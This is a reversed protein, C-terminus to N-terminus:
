DKKNEKKDANLVRRFLYLTIALVPIQVSLMLFWAELRM